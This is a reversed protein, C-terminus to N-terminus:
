PPDTGIFLRSIRRTDDSGRILFHLVFNLRTKGMYMQHLRYAERTFAQAIDAIM